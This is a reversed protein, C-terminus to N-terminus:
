GVRCFAGFESDRFDARHVFLFVELVAGQCVEKGLAPYRRVVLLPASTLPHVNYRLYLTQANDQFRLSPKVALRLGDLVGVGAQTLVQCSHHEGDAIRGADSLVVQGVGLQSPCDPQLRALRGALPGGAAQCLQSLCHQLRWM